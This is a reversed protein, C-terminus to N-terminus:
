IEILEPVCIKDTSFYVTGWSLGVGFGCGIMKLSKTQLEERLQTVMTLPISASSTNGFDKLSYPVREETIKLKKRIKENMFKNAQHFLYYDVKERVVGYHEIVKNVSQPAKSIGFSFVDMGNLIIDLNTRSIGESIEKMTLSEASFGNRYAGEPIIITDFGKGDTALHFQLPDSNIEYQLATATGADGFLPYTSKDQKSNIKLITDGCLLLAKKITGSSVLNSIVSMGYVWGSCGLSIDLTYCEDSLGLREQLTCSTSPLIYDPTQTVFILCEIEEKKWGLEAILKEAAHYCLDSTTTNNDAVRRCEIGTSAIFKDADEENVFLASLKNEDKTKPVCGSMGKIAVSNVTLYAM